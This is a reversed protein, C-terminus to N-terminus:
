SAARDQGSDYDGHALREVVRALEFPDIPKVVHMQYGAAIARKRDDDRALATLAAAPIRGGHEADLRRIERILDFGSEGPMLVDSLLVDPPQREFRDHAEGASSAIMVEAGHEELAARLFELAQPDDDVVLVSIGSLVPKVTPEETAAVEDSARIPLRVTFVSGHGVGASEATITGGHLEVLSRVIGLGLGLGGYQRTPSSDGQRFREFLHAAVEPNFGIGSDSCTLRIQQWESELGVRVRGGAITFKIANSLLNWVVQQMRDPDAAIAPVSLDLDTDVVIRKAAAAPALSRVVAEILPQLRIHRPTIDLKGAVIRSIDLLNEILRAQALGAREIAQVAKVSQPADLKGTALLRAWGLVSNLPTRLEHSLTALFDDKLRNAAEARRSQEDAITLLRNYYSSLDDIRKRVRRVILFCALMGGGVIVIGIMVAGVHELEWMLVTAFVGIAAIPAGILRGLNPQRSDPM